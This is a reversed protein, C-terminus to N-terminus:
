QNLLQDIRRELEHLKKVSVTKGMAAELRAQRLSAALDSLAEASPDDQKGKAPPELATVADALAKTADPLNGGLIEAKAQVVKSKAELLGQRRRLGREIRMTADLADKSLKKVSQQFGEITEESIALRKSLDSVNTQLTGVPKQGLYYGAGFSCAILVLIIIFKAM